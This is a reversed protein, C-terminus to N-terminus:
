LDQERFCGHKILYLELFVKICLCILVYFLITRTISICFVDPQFAPTWCQLNEVLWGLSYKKKKQPTQRPVVSWSKRWSQAEKGRVKAYAVSGGLRSGWVWISWPCINEQGLCCGGNLSSCSASQEEMREWQIDNMECERLDWIVIFTKEKITM